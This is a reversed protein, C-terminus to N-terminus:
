SSSSNGYIEHYKELIVLLYVLSKDIYLKLNM